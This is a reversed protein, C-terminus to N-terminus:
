YPFMDFKLKKNKYTMLDVKYRTNDYATLTNGNGDDGGQGKEYAFAVSPTSTTIPFPCKCFQLLSPL